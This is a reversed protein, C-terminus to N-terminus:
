KTYYYIIVRADLPFEDGKKFSDQGNIVVREVDKPEDFVGSEKESKSVTINIFGANEFLSKVDEYRKGKLSTSKDPATLVTELRAKEKADNIDKVLKNRTNDWRKDDEHSYNNGRISETKILAEDYRGADIDDQIQQVVSELHKVNEEHRKTSSTINFSSSIAMTFLILLSVIGIIGDRGMSEILTRIIGSKREYKANEFAMKRQKLSADLKMHLRKNEAELEAIRKKYNIVHKDRNIIFESKCHDCLFLDIDKEILQNSGCFPCTLQQMKYTVEM